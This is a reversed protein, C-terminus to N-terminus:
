NSIVMEGAVIAARTLLKLIVACPHKRAIARHDDHSRAVGHNDQSAINESM